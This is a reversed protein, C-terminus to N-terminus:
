VPSRGTLHAVASPAIPLAAPADSPSALMAALRAAVYHRVADPVGNVVWGKLVEAAVGSAAALQEFTRGGALYEHLFSLADKAPDIVVVPPPPAVIRAPRLRMEGRPWDKVVHEFMTEADAYLDTTSLKEHGLARRVWMPSRGTALMIATWTHRTCHPSLDREEADVDCATLYRRFAKWQNKDDYRRMLGDAVVWGHRDKEPVQDLIDALEGLLPAIREKNGKPAWLVRGKADRIVRITIAKAERDIWEWRVHAAEDVRFGGYVLLCAMLYYRDVARADAVMRRLEDVRLATKVRKDVKFRKIGTLPNTRLGFKTVGLKGISKLEVLWRNKTVPGPPEKGEAFSPAAVLWDRVTTQFSSSRLDVAGAEVVATAVREVEEIYRENLGRGRQAAVYEAAVSVFPLAGSSTLEWRLLARQDEAWARGDAKEGDPYRKSKWSRRRPDWVRFRWRKGRQHGNIAWMDLLEIGDEM